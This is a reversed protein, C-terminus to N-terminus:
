VLMDERRGIRRSTQKSRVIALIRATANEEKLIKRM